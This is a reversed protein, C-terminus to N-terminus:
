NELFKEFEYISSDEGILYLVDDKKLVSNARPIILEEGRKIAVINLDFKNRFELDALITDTLSDKEVKIQVLSHNDDFGVFDTVLRHMKRKAVMEGVVKEPTVIDEIGLNVLVSTLKDNDSKVTINKIGINKLAMVTMISGEIDSGIGVIVHDVNKIGSSALAEEDTTDLACAYDVKNAIKQIKEEDKDLVMVSVNYKLFTDVVSMGFTGLGIVAFEKKVKFGM